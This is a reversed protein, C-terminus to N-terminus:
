ILLIKPKALWILLKQPGCKAWPGYTTCAQDLPNYVNLGKLERTPYCPDFFPKEAIFNFPCSIFLLSM